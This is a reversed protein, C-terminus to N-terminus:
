NYDKDLKTNTIGALVQFNDGAKKVAPNRNLEESPLV